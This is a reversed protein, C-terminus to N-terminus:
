FVCWLFDEKSVYGTKKFSDTHRLRQQMPLESQGLRKLFRWLHVGTNALTMIALPMYIICFIKTSSKEPHIDGYGVTTMTIASVYFSDIAGWGELSGMACGVLLYFVLPFIIRDVFVDDFECSFFPKVVYKALESAVHVTYRVGIYAFIKQIM